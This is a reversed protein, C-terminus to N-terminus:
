AVPQKNSAIRGKWELDFLARFIRYPAFRSLRILESVSRRGDLHELVWEVVDVSEFDSLDFDLDTRAFVEASDGFRSRELEYMEDRQRMAELLLEVGSANATTECGREDLCAGEAFTFKGGELDVQFAEYFAEDGKLRLTKVRSARGGNIEMEVVSEGRASAVKLLGSNQPDTILTQIIASLDFFRLSGDLVADRGSRSVNDRLRGAFYLCLSSALSPTSELLGILEARDITVIEASEPIRASSEYRRGQLIGLEAVVEGPGLYAVPVVEDSGSMKRLIEVVGRKIIHASNCKTGAMFLIEGASHSVTRSVAAVKRLAEVPVNEFLATSQLAQLESQRGTAPSARRPELADASEAVAVDKGAERKKKELATTVRLNSIESTSEGRERLITDIDRSMVSRNTCFSRAVEASIVKARFLEAISQDFSKMGYSHGESIIDYIDAGHSGRLISERIRLTSTMVETALIRDGRRGPLLRQAIVSKLSQALRSRILRKDQEDFLAEFYSIAEGANSAHMTSLVLHGTEAAKLAVAATERDRMEGLLIVNPAQRLSSRLGDPFDQFDRGLERQNVTARRSRHVYEIPDELTVIHSSRSENILNVVGALTSTKGSGTPGVVLVLGMRLDAVWDLSTGHGLLSLEPIVNPLVRLVVSTGGHTSFASGRLRTGDALTETFEVVGGSELQALGDEGELFLGLLARTDEPTLEAQLDGLRVAKLEGSANAQPPCGPTLNIDAIRETEAVLRRISELLEARNM